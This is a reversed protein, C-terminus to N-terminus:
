VPQVVSNVETATDTATGANLGLPPSLMLYSGPFLTTVTTVGAAVALAPTPSPPLTPHMQINSDNKAKLARALSPRRSFFSSHRLSPVSSNSFRGLFGLLRSHHFIM